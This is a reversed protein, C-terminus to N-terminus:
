AVKEEEIVIAETPCREIVELLDSKDESEVESKIPHSLGDEDFGFYKGQMQVCVGCGVCKEKDVKIKEM